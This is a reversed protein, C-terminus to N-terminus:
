SKEFFISKVTERLSLRKLWGDLLGASNPLINRTVDPFEISTMSKLVSWTLWISSHENGKKGVPLKLLDFYSLINFTTYWSPWTSWCRQYKFYARQLPRVRWSNARSNIASVNEIFIIWDELKGCDKSQSIIALFVPLFVVWKQLLLFLLFLSQWPNCKLAKILEHFSFFLFTHIIVPIYYTTILKM